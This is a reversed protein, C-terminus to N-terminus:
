LAPYVNPWTERVSTMQKTFGVVAVTSYVSQTVSPKGILSVYLFKLCYVWSENIKILHCKYLVFIIEYRLCIVKEGKM